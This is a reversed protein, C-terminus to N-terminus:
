SLVQLEHPDSGHEQSGLILLDPGRLHLIENENGVISVTSFLNQRHLFVHQIRELEVQRYGRWIHEHDTKELGSGTLFLYAHDENWSMYAYGDM